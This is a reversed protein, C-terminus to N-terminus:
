KNDVIKRAKEIVSQKGWDKKPNKSLETFFKELQRYESHEESIGLSKLGQLQFQLDKHIM